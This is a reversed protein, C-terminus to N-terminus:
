SDAPLRATTQETVSPQSSTAQDATKEPMKQTDVSAPTLPLPTHGTLRDMRRRMVRSQILNGIGTGITIAGWVVLWSCFLLWIMMWDPKNSFLALAVGLLVSAVSLLSGQAIGRIGDNERKLWQPDKGGADSEEPHPTSQTNLALAVGRLDLGCSRCFKTQDQNNAACQPCYM